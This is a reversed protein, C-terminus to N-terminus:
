YCNGDCTQSCNYTLVVNLVSNLLKIAFATKVTVTVSPPLYRFREITLRGKGKKPRLISKPRLGLLSRSLYIRTESNLQPIEDLCNGTQM